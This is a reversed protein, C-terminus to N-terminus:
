HESTRCVILPPSQVRLPDFLLVARSIRPAPSGQHDVIGTVGQAEDHPLHLLDIPHHQHRSRQVGPCSGQFPQATITTFLSAPLRAMLIAPSRTKTAATKKTSPYM